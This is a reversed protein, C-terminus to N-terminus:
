RSFDNNYELNFLMDRRNERGMRIKFKKALSEVKDDSEYDMERICRRRVKKLTEKSPVFGSTVQGIPENCANSEKWIHCVLNCLCFIFQLGFLFHLVMEDIVSLAAKPDRNILHADVLLSYSMANPQVGLSVLHEFM